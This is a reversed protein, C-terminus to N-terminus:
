GSMIDGIPKTMLLQNSPLTRLLEGQRAKEMALQNQGCGNGMGWEGNGM